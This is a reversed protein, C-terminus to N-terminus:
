GGLRDGVQKPGDVEMHGPHLLHRQDRRRVLIAEALKGGDNARLEVGVGDERAPGLPGFSWRQHATAGRNIASSRTGSSRREHNPFRNRAKGSKSITTASM